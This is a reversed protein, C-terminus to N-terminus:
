CVFACHVLFNNYRMDLYVGSHRVILYESRKVYSTNNKLKDLWFMTHFLTMKFNMFMLSTEYILTSYFTDMDM